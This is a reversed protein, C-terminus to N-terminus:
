LLNVFIVQTYRYDNAFQTNNISAGHWVNTNFMIARNPKGQFFKDVTCEERDVWMRSRYDQPVYTNFGEGDDYEKNLFVITAIDSKSDQHINYRFDLYKDSLAKNANIVLKDEVITKGHYGIIKNILVPYEDVYPLGTGKMNTAYSKRGDFMDDCTYETLAVPLKSMEDYVRDFDTYFNDIVVANSNFLEVHKYTSNNNLTFAKNDFIVM